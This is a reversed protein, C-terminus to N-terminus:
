YECVRVYVSENIESVYQSESVCDGEVKCDSNFTCADGNHRCKGFSCDGDKECDSNFTCEKSGYRKIIDEVVKAKIEKKREDQKKAIFVEFGKHYGKMFTVGIPECEKMPETGEEGNKYGNNYNCFTKLGEKHGQLYNAKPISVGHEQCQQQYINFQATSEGSSGDQQGRERWNISTCDEKSLTACASLILLLPLLSIKM